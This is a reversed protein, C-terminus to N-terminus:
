GRRVQRVAGRDRVYADHRMLRETQSLEVEEKRLLKAEDECRRGDRHTCNPCNIKDDKNIAEYRWCKALSM